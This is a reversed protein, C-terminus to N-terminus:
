YVEQIEYHIGNFDLQDGAKKGRLAQYIPAKTSLGFIDMGNVEVQEISVSVFFIRQNTVVVAGPAVQELEHGEQITELLELEQKLFGLESEYRHLLDSREAASSDGQSPTEDHAYIEKKLAAIEKEFDQIELQQKILCAHIISKKEPRDKM